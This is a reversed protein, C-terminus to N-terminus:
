LVSIYAKKEYVESGVRLIQTAVSLARPLTCIIKELFGVNPSLINFHTFNSAHFTAACIM